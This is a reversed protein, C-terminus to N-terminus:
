INHVEYSFLFGSDEIADKCLSLFKKGEDDPPYKCVINVEIKKGKSEPYAEYIEGSQLFELYSNLKEQIMLLHEKSGWKFHDTATLIVVDREESTGIIDIVESEKISM